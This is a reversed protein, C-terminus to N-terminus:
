TKWWNFRTGTLQLDGRIIADNVRITQNEAPINSQFFQASM